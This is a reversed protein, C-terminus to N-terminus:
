IKNNTNKNLKDLFNIYTDIKIDVLKMETLLHTIHNLEEILKPPKKIYM